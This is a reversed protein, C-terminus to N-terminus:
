RGIHLQLRSVIFLWAPAHMSPTNVARVARNTMVSSHHGVAAKPPAMFYDALYHVTHNHDSHPHIHIHCSIMAAPVVALLLQLVACTALKCAVAPSSQSIHETSLSPTAKQSAIRSLRCEVCADLRSDAHELSDDANNKDHINVTPM